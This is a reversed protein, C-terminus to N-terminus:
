AEEVANVRDKLLKSPKFRVSSRDYLMETIGEAPRYVLRPRKKWVTFHGFGKLNVKNGDLISSEVRELFMDVFQILYDKKLDPYRLALEELLESKNVSRTM